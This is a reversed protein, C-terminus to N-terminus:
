AVRSGKRPRLILSWMVGGLVKAAFQGLMIPWMIGGFAITPFTVSDVAAGVVNSANSRVLWEWRQMASYVAWDALAALSFAVSSALAITAADKNLMYTIAGGVAVLVAMNRARNDRWLDHLYDRLVLDLGILLFANVIIVKPGYHAVLLNAAIISVLYGAVAASAAQNSRM